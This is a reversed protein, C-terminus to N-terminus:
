ALAGMMQSDGCCNPCPVFRRDKPTKAQFNFLQKTGDCKECTKTRLEITRHEKRIPGGSKDGKQCGEQTLIDGKQCGESVRRPTFLTDSHCGEASDLATFQYSCGFGRGSKPPPIKRLVGHEELYALYRQAQRLSCLSEKALTPVSPWAADHNTNHYDGLILALLKQGCSIPAGDPCRTLAKVYAAAQWSM